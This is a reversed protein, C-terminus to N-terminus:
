AIDVMRWAESCKNKPNGGSFIIRVDESAKKCKHYEELAKHMRDLLIEQPEGNERLQYGFVIIIKM